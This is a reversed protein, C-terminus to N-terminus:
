LALILYFQGQFFHDLIADLLFIIKGKCLRFIRVIAKVQNIPNSKNRKEKEWNVQNLGSVNEKVKEAFVGLSNLLHSILFIFFILRM